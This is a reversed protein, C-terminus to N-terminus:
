RCRLDARAADRGILAGAAGGIVTGATRDRGGDIARGLLAGAAAGIILGTTGNDRQCYYRGDRGLWVRDGPHVRQPVVYYGYRHYRRNDRYGEKRDDHDYREYRGYRARQDDRDGRRDYSARHDHHGYAPAWGPPHALAPATPLALSLLSTAWLTMRM